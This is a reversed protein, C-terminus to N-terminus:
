ASKRANEEAVGGAAERAPAAQNLREIAVRNLVAAKSAIFVTPKLAPNGSKKLELITMHRTGDGNADETQNSAARQANTLVASTM